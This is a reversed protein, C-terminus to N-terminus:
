WRSPCDTPAKSSSGTARPGAAPSPTRSTRSGSMPESRAGGDAAIKVSADGAVTLGQWTGTFGSLSISSRDMTFVTSLRTGPDERSSVTLEPSTVVLREFDTWLAATADVSLRSLLASVQAEQRSLAGGGMALHYVQDPPAGALTASLSLRRQGATVLEGAAHVLDGEPADAFSVDGDFRLGSPGPEIDVSLRDLGVEGVRVETGRVSLSGERRVVEVTTEVSGLSLGTLNSVTFTGEPWFNSLLVDGVFGLSGVPSAATLSGFSVRRRDGDFVAAVHLDHAFPVQDVLDAQLDGAYTISGDAPRYSVSASGSVPAAFWPAFRTWAGAPRLVQDARFGEARMTATVDGSPLDVVLALDVPVRDEIKTVSLRGDSLSAHFTQPRAAVVPTDLTLLRVTADAATFDRAVSGQAKLGSAFWAGSDMRGSLGGRLSVDLREGSGGAEFFLGTGTLRVGPAALEVDVGAAILRMRPLGGTRGESSTFRSVLDILDRDAELDLRLSVGSIRIERLSGVPDRSTLLGLLSYRVKLTRVTLLDRAAGDSSRVVLDRVVIQRLVSPSISRYTVTRGLLQELAAMGRVKLDAMRVSLAGDIASVGVVTAGVLAGFTLFGLALRLARKM